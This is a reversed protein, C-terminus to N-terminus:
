ASAFVSASSFHLQQPLQRQQHQLQVQTSPKTMARDSPQPLPQLRASNSNDASTLAMPGTDHTCANMTKAGFMGLTLSRVSCHSRCLWGPCRLLSYGCGSGDVSFSALSALSSHVPPGVAPLSLLSNTLPTAIGVVSEASFESCHHIKHSALM